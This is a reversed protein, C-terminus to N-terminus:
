LAVGVSTRSLPAFQSGGRPGASGTQSQMKIVESFPWNLWRQAERKGINRFLWFEVCVM